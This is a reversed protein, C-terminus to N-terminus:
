HPPRADRITGDADFELQRRAFSLRPAEGAAAALMATALNDRALARLGVYSTTLRPNIEIVVDERGDTADGLVLDVGLYGLPSPLTAVARAALETARGALASELPLAGGLYRYEGDDSLRQGCPPLSFCSKPGCFFAASVAIGPCFEEARAPGPFEDLYSAAASDDLVLRVDQSGAGFRPKIVTPFGIGRPISGGGSIPVGRPVRLGAASLHEATRQKDAAVSVLSACPGLLRGGSEEVLRCRSRLLDDFEPAIVITWDAGPSYKSLVAFEEEPSNVPLIQCDALLPLGSGDVMALVEVGELASFDAALAAMMAAGERRISESAQAHRDGVLGGSTVFEYLL